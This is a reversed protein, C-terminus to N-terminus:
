ATKEGEEVETVDRLGQKFSTASQGLSRMLSPLRHGFLIVMVVMVVLLETTGIGFMVREGRALFFAKLLSGAPFSLHRSGAGRGLHLPALVLKHPTL